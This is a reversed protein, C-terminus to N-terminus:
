GERIIRGDIYGVRLYVNHNYTNRDVGLVRGGERGGGGEVKVEERKRKEKDEGWGKKKEM